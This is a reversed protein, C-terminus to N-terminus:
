GERHGRLDRGAAGHRLFLYPDAARQRAWLNRTGRRFRQVGESVDALLCIGERDAQPRDEGGGGAQKGRPRDAEAVFRAARYLAQRGETSEEAASCAM